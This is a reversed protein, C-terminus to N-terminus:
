KFVYICCLVNNNPQLISSFNFRNKFEKYNQIIKVRRHM